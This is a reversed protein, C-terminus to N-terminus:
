KSGEGRGVMGNEFGVVVVVLVMEWLAWTKRILDGLCGGALRELFFFVRRGRESIGNRARNSRRGGNLMSLELELELDLEGLWGRSRSLDRTKSGSNKKGKAQFQSLHVCVCM